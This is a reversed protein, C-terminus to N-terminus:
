DNQDARKCKSDCYDEGDTEEGCFRCLTEEDQYGDPENPLAWGYPYTM